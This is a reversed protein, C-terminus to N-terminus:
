RARYGGRFSGLACARPTQRHQAAVRERRPMPRPLWCIEARRAETLRPSMMPEEQTILALALVIWRADLSFTM